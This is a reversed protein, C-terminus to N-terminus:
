YYCFATVFPFLQLKYFGFNYAGSIVLKRLFLFLVLDAKADFCGMENGHGTSIYIRLPLGSSLYNPLGCAFIWHAVVNDGGGSTYVIRLTCKPCSHQWLM